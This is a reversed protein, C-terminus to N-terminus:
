HHAAQKLQIMALRANLAALQSIIQRLKRMISFLLLSITCLTLHLLLASM